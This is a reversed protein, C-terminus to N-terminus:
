EGESDKNLFDVVVGKLKHWAYLALQVAFYDMPRPEPLRGYTGDRKMAEFLESHTKRDFRLGKVPLGRMQLEQIIASNVSTMDMLVVSPSHKAIESAIWEEIDRGVNKRVREIQLETETKIAIVTYDPFLAFDVGMVKRENDENM